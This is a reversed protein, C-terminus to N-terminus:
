MEKKSTKVADDKTELSKLLISISGNIMRILISNLM